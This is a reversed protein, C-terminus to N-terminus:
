ASHFLWLHDEHGYVATQEITDIIGTVLLEMAPVGQVERQILHHCPCVLFDFEMLIQLRADKGATKMSFSHLSSILTVFMRQPFTNSNQLLFSVGWRLDADAAMVKLILSIISKM